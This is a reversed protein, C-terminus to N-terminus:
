CSLEMPVVMECKWISHISEMFTKTRQRPPIVRGCQKARIPRTVDSRM